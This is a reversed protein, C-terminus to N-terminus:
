PKIIKYNEVITKRQPAGFKPSSYAGAVGGTGSGRDKDRLGGGADEVITFDQTVFVNEDVLKAKGPFPWTLQGGDVEVPKEDWTDMDQGSLRALQQWRDEFLEFGEVHYDDDKRFSFELKRIVEKNGARGDNYWLPDFATDDLTEMDQPMEENILDHIKTVAEDIDSVCKGACVSCPGGKRTFIHGKNIFINNRAMFSYGEKKGDALLPGDTFIGGNLFTGAKGFASVVRADSDPQIRFTHFIQGFPDDIYHVISKSKTMLTGQGRSADLTIVGPSDDTGEFGGVTRMYIHKAHAVVEAKKARLVVGGFVVSDGPEDFNYVAAKARSEILVGGLKKSTDNGALVMVNQEAKVRVNEETSSIDVTNNARVICDRGAWIQANKGPKLWVDGPASITVTGATMRIEAGYGDGIVIGGDELLTIFSESAYFKQSSYRHDVQIQKPEPESLYMSGKLASYEPVVSNYQAHQLESQEWTKYDQAHWHFPHLGAYNFLYGHLDLVGAARQLNPYKDSTELDGTIKHEDGGGYKGAFKYNKETDGNGDEPRRLRSPVPLLLRKVLSIGKASAIFRRGDLGTNDESLGIPPQEEHTTEKDSGGGEPLSISLENEVTSEFPAPPKGDSELKYTWWSADAPPACVVTREGQGYYGYFKQTRHFPQQNDYKNEWHGYYPYGSAQRIAEGSYEKVIDQGPKLSGMHEWPYPTYGQTDNYEAQDMYADREHGATWTQMNYGAVRLLSDHYFGFVGTFENVSMKVMFDDLSVGLGTTTIAGWDSSMTADFPQWASFNMLGSGDTMKLYRMDAEDVRHRTTQSIVDHMSEAGTDAPAPIAGIIFAQPMAPHRFVLVRTGPVFSSFATAGIVSQSTQSLAEAVVAYNERELEVIYANATSSGDIVQGILIHGDRNLSTSYAVYRTYPDASPRLNAGVDSTSTNSSLLLADTLHRFLQTQDNYPAAGTHPHTYVQSAGDAM